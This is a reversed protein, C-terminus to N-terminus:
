RMVRALAVAAGADAGVGDGSFSDPTVNVIGMVLTRAGFELRHGRALLPPPPAGRAVLVAAIAEGITALEQGLPGRAGPLTGASCACESAASISLAPRWPSWAATPSARRSGNTSCRPRRTSPTAM